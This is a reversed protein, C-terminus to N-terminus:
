FFADFCVVDNVRNNKFDSYAMTLEYLDILKKDQM